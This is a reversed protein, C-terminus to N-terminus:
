PEAGVPVRPFVYQAVWKTAVAWLLCAMPWAAVAEKPRFPHIANSAVVFGALGLLMAAAFTKERDARRFGIGALVVLYAALELYPRPRCAHAATFLRLGPQWLILRPSWYRLNLPPGPSAPMYGVFASALAGTPQLGDGAPDLTVRPQANGTISTRAVARAVAAAVRWPNDRVFELYVRTALENGEKLGIYHYLPVASVWLRFSAPRPERDIFEVLEARPMAMIRDYVTRYSARVGPPAGDDINWFAHAYMYDQPIVRVLARYRLTNLAASGEIADNGFFGDLQEMFLWGSEYEFGTARTSPRHFFLFHSGTVLAFAAAAGFATLWRQRWPMTEFLLLVVFMLGFLPSNYKILFALGFTAGAAVYALAKNRRSDSSFGVACLCVTVFLADAQLWEPFATSVFSMFFTSMGWFFVMTVAVLSGFTRLLLLSCGAVLAAHVAHQLLLIKLLTAMQVADVPGAPDWLAGEAAAPLQAVLRLLHGIVFPYGSAFILNSKLHLIMSVYVMADAATNLPYTVVFLAAFVLWLALASAVM